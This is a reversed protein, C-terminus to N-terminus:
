MRWQAAPPGVVSEFERQETAPVMSGDVFLAILDHALRVARELKPPRVATREWSNRWRSRYWVIWDSLKASRVDRVSQTQVRPGRACAPLSFTQIHAPRDVDQMGTGRLQRQTRSYIWIAIAETTASETKM